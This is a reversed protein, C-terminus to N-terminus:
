GGRGPREGAPSTRRAAVAAGRRRVSTRPLPDPPSGRDDVQDPALHLRGFPITVSFTTGVGLASQVEIQGGHLRVLEQTLALGIGSGEQTRARVAEFRRFREFVHPLQEPAIGNGSDRVSLSVRSDDGPVRRMVVAIEGVFTFKLANSLLNLVIKEWMDRDVYVPQALPPCDIVLRLGAREVAARFVSALDITLSALNTPQFRAQVRGAEIRSFELLANVLKLLRRENRYVTQLDEGRLAQDPAVLADETPGLMLTLPTRFEHSINSFFTTKARDIAALAEARRRAEQHVKADALTAGIHGVVLDAFTQYGADWPRRPSIGLVLLGGLGSTGTALEVEPQAPAPIPLVMARTAPEPWPGGPLPVPMKGLDDIEAAQGSRLVQALPWPGVNGHALCVAAPLGHQETVGSSGALVARQGTEDAVYIAAFPVDHPNDALVAAVQACAARVDGAGNRVGLRRLTELRRAGVVQETTETCPTFIGDVTRGDEALLPGYTFRVYVEERPLKREFFFAVDQTWTAQGTERVGELMPGITNWIESWCESGPRGLFRPHKTEGLLPSYADNYLLSFRPGWWLVIPFRSTLCISVATRLNQPWFEPPGLDTSAWDFSRM